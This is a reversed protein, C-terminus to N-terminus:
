YGAEILSRYVLYDWHKKDLENIDSMNELRM